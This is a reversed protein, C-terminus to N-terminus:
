PKAGLKENAKKACDTAEEIYRMDEYKGVISNLLLAKECVMSALKYDKTALYYRGLFVWNNRYLPEQKTAEQMLQLAKVNDGGFISPLEQYYRGLVRSSGYGDYKPNIKKAQELAIMGSKANSAASLIGKALGYSGLNLAYWYHGEVQEPKLNQAKLGAHVGYDFLDAGESTDVFKNKGIGYNGIFLILRSTKWATAYDNPVIPKTLLYNIIVKQNYEDQRHEWCSDVIKETLLTDKSIAFKNFVKSSNAAYSSIITCFFVSCFFFWKCSKCFINIM